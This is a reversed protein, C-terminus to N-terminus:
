LFQSMKRIEQFPQESITHPANFGTLSIKYKLHSSKKVYGVIITYKM